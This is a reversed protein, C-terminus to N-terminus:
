FEEFDSARHGARGAPGNARSEGPAGLVPRRSAGVQVPRRRSASASAPSGSSVNGNSPVPTVATPAGDGVDFTAVMLRLQEAQSDLGSATSSLEETQAANSQVVHEMQSVAKSVQEIGTTQEHSVAAIEAMLDTVRKVSTVIDELTRGSQTVLGSGAEVKAVSDHILSKIEQAATASRQALNRVETAVVAFGRGQEGARAAEVAANLALLNTQFAIEDVTIIIDAIKKSATSIETM